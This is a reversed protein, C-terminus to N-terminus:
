DWDLLRREGELKRIDTVDQSVEIVGRYREQEDRVAFYQILVFKNKIQIWFSAKDKEGKRFSDVIENVIHVSEHPHCNQVKRGIIAKSRVFFRDKPSSFYKVENNEDVFTIDVPLNNFIGIIQEIKLKGTELDILGDSASDDKEIIATKAKGKQKLKNLKDPIEVFSFGIEMSQKLMDDWINQTIAKQAIPYLIYEERFIVPYVAFFLKGIDMNFQSLLPESRELNDILKKLNKRADDHMSWMVNVCRFDPFDQEFYPFLINEKKIYHSEYEQLNNLLSLLEDKRKLLENKPDKQKFIKKVILKLSEMRQEMGKNEEMLLYLFSDKQVEVKGYAKVSKYFINLIKNVARKIEPMDEGTKVLEDVVKIVEQPSVTKLIDEYQKYLGAGSEGDLVGMAYAILSKMRTDSNNILESM